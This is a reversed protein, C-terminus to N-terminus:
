TSSAGLLAEVVRERPVVFASAATLDLDYGIGSVGVPVGGILTEPIVRPFGERVEYADEGAVAFTRSPLDDLEGVDRIQENFHDLNGGELGARIRTVLGDVSIGGGDVKELRVVHLYLSGGDPAVLQDIASIHVKPAQSSSRLSTKVEVAVDGRRFDHRGGAPGMWARVASPDHDIARALWVLEGVLGIISIPAWQGPAGILRRFEEACMSLGRTISETRVRICLLACFLTFADNLAADRCWIHLGRRSMGSGSFSAVEAALMGGSQPHLTPEISIAVPREPLVLLGRNGEATLTACVQPQDAVPQSVRLQGELPARQAALIWASTLASAIHQQEDARM